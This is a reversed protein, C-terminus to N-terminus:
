KLKVKVGEEEGMAKVTMNFDLDANHILAMMIPFSSFNPVNVDVGFEDDIMEELVDPKLLATFVMTEESYYGFEDGVASLASSKIWFSAIIMIILSIFIPVLILKNRKIYNLHDVSTSKLSESNINVNSPIKINSITNEFMRNLANKKQSKALHSQGCNVCFSYGLENKTGCAACFESANYTLNISDSSDIVKSTNPCYVYFNPHQENCHTCQM